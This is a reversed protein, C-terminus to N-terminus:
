DRVVEGTCEPPAHDPLYHPRPLEGMELIQFRGGGRGSAGEPPARDQLGQPRPRERVMRQGLAELRHWCRDIEGV